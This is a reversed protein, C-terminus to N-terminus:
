YDRAKLRDLILDKFPAPAGQISQAPWSKAVIPRNWTTRNGLDCEILNPPLFALDEDCFLELLLSLREMSRPLNKLVPSPIHINAGSKFIRLQPLHNLATASLQVPVTSKGLKLSTLLPPLQSVADKFSTLGSHSVILSSFDASTVSRPILHFHRPQWFDAKFYKLGILDSLLEESISCREFELSTLSPPLKFTQRPDFVRVNCLHMETISSPWEGEVGIGGSSLKELDLCIERLQPPLESVHVDATEQITSGLKFKLSKLARPLLAFAGKDITTLTIFLQTLTSPWPAAILNSATYILEGKCDEFLHLSTLSAPLRAIAQLSLRESSFVKLVADPLRYTGM